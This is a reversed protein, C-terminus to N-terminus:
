CWAMRDSPPLPVVAPMLPKVMGADVMPGFIVNLTQYLKSDRYSPAQSDYLVVLAVPGHVLTPSETDVVAGYM